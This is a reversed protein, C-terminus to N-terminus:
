ADHPCPPEKQLKEWDQHSSPAPPSPEPLSPSVPDSFSLSEPGLHPTHPCSLPFIDQRLGPIEWQVRPEQGTAEM